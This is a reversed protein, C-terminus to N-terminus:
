GFNTGSWHITYSVIICAIVFLVSSNYKMSAGPPVSLVNRIESLKAVTRDRFLIASAIADDLNQIAAIRSELIAAISKSPVRVACEDSFNGSFKCVAINSFIRSHAFNELCRSKEYPIFPCHSVFFCNFRKITCQFIQPSIFLM